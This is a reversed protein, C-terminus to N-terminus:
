QVFLCCDNALAAACFHFITILICIKVKGNLKSLWLFSFVGGHVAQCPVKADFFVSLQICTMPMENHGCSCLAANVAQRVQVRRVDQVPLLCRGEYQMSVPVIGVDVRDQVCNHGNHRCFEQM